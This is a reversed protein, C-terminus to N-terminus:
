FITSIRNERNAVVLSNDVIEGSVITGAGIVCNKGIHTGKLIIVGAGIWCGEGITVDACNYIGPKIGKIGFIHDHDYICVNPGFICKDGIKINKRCVVICNHNFSVSDGIKLEGKRCILHVNTQTSIYGLEVWGGKDIVIETDFNLNYNLNNLNLAKGYKMKIILLKIINKMKSIM